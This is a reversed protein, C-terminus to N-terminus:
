LTWGERYARRIFPDAEPCNTAKLNAPDWELKKGVRYAVTGLLVTETLPGSYDFNCGTPSGTKCAALWEQAHGISEPITRPPRRFGAFKEKPYLEHKGWESILMGDAGVFLVGEPWDPMNHEKQQPPRKVGDYWTLKVPPLDGRAPFEWRAILWLPTGEPHVPPGEAEATVPYKLDLAWFALDILHCGMDGLRGNGFDWWNRWAIPHYCPHYPRYPAPGLWLDWQLSEPVPPTGRPRYRNGWAQDCWAHVERVEGIAGANILEVVRRYNYGAHSGTGLQTALGYRRAVQTAERVEHINHGLPKETYSHKGMKMAMVSIPLHTHDATAVMVADINKDEKDLMRRFDRYTKAKEYRSSAKALYNADVDCLAVINHSEMMQIVQWGRNGVGIGAVNVKESPPTHGAGGLVHRPVIALGALATGALSKRLFERRKCRNERSIM